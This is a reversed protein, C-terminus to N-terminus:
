RNVSDVTARIPEPPYNESSILFNYFKKLSGLYSIKTGAANKNPKLFLHLVKDRDLLDDINGAPSVKQLIGHVQQYQPKALRIERRGGDFSTLWALFRSFLTAGEVPRKAQHVEDSLPVDEDEHDHAPVDHHGFAQPAPM